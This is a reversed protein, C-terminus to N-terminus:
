IFVCLFHFSFFCFPLIRRTFSITFLNSFSAELYNRKNVSFIGIESFSHERLIGARFDFTLYEQVGLPGPYKCLAFASLRLFFIKQVFM